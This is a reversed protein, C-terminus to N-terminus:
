YSTGSRDVGPGKQRVSASSATMVQRGAGNRRSSGWIATRRQGLERSPRAPLHHQRPGCSAEKGTGSQSRPGGLPSGAILGSVFGATNLGALRDREARQMQLAHRYSEGTQRTLLRPEKRLDYKDELSVDRLANAPRWLNATKATKAHEERLRGKQVARTKCPKRTQHLRPEYTRGEETATRSREAKGANEAPKGGPRTGREANAPAYGNFVRM